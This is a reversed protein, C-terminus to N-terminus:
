YQEPEGVGCGRGIIFLHGRRLYQAHEDVFDTSGGAAGEQDINALQGAVAEGDVFVGAWSVFVTPQIVASSRTFVASIATARLREAALSM